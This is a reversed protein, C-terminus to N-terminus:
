RRSRDARDGGDDAQGMEHGRLRREPGVGPPDVLLDLAIWVTRSFPFFLLPLGVAFAVAVLEQWILDAGSLPTGFILFLATGLGIIEAAILNLAYAGLFYGEEREFSVGCTPCRERLSWWGAFIGGGGCYPCRRSFARGLLVRLRPWTGAPLRPLPPGDAANPPTSAM